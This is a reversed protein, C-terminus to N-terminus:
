STELPGIEEEVARLIALEQVAKKMANHDPYLPRDEDLHDV